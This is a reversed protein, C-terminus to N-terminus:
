QSQQNTTHVEIHYYYYNITIIIKNITITILTSYRCFLYM